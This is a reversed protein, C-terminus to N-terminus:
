SVAATVLQAVKKEVAPTWRQVAFSVPWRVGDDLRAPHQFELGAALDTPNL